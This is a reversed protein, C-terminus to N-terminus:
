ILGCSYDIYYNCFESDIPNGAANNLIININIGTSGFNTIIKANGDKAADYFDKKNGLIFKGNQKARIMLKNWTIKDAEDCQRSIPITFSHTKGDNSIFGTLCLTDSLTVGSKAKYQLLDSPDILKRAESGAIEELYNKTEDKIIFSDLMYDVGDFISRQKIEWSM